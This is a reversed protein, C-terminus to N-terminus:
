TKPTSIIELFIMITNTFETTKLQTKRINENEKIIKTFPKNLFNLGIIFIPILPNLSLLIFISVIGTAVAGTAFSLFELLTYTMGVGYLAQEVKEQTSKSDTLEIPLSLVKENVAFALEDNFVQLTRQYFNSSYASILENALNLILALLVFGFMIEFRRLGNYEDIILKSAIINFLPLLGLLLSIFIVKRIFGPHKDEIIKFLRIYNRM